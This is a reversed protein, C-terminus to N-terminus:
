RICNALYVKDPNFTTSAICKYIVEKKQCNGDLPCDSKNRCNCKPDTSIVGNIVKKNHSKIISSLNETCCYSVKVSNRNFIKHLINSKPFHKDLM